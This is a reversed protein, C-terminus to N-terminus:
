GLLAQYVLRQLERRLPYSSSPILQTFFVCTLEETPDVWFTTSAAGGWSVTGEPTPLRLRSRDLVCSLGLGFGIGAMSLESFSDVAFELLDADGPLFNRSMLEITSPAVLRAADLAGRGLLMSAFRQYDAATSVLGGGGSLYSPPKTGFAAMAGAHRFGGDAYLYLQALRPVDAEACFFGTDGMELPEFIRERLFQDLTQGSWVEVLRGVVDTALSYNWASGPDFLLPWCALQDVADALVLGRPQGFDFGERRYIADVPHRRQFGYTLGSTHTLLHWVRIPESAPRTVPAEPPGELYVRPSSFAPLWRAAEDNLDFLGEEHLLMAALSTVPKTMSYVRWVTDAEVPLSGAVDRLGGSGVWAVKTGRSVACQWGPLRGEAVYRDFHSSLRALRDADLGVDAPDVVAEIRGM